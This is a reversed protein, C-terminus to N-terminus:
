PIIFACLEFEEEPCIKINYSYEWICRPRGEPRKEVSKKMGFTSEM